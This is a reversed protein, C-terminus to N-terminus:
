CRGAGRRDVGLRDVMALVPSLYLFTSLLSAPMRALAYSWLVYAIAAPFIGLYIIALTASPAASDPDPQRAGARVRADPHHRGLDHVRDVRAALVHAARQKSVIFYAATSVAALLVLLAGPEFSFAAARAWRSSRSARSRSPSASGARDRHAARAPVGGVDDGHVGAGGLHAAVGCRRERAGRRLQARRPLGHHRPVRGARHARLDARRLCRADADFLPTGGLVLSAVGFRLLAVEGPGYGDPGPVGAPTLRM